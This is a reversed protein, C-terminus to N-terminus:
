AKRARIRMPVRCFDGPLTSSRNPCPNKHHSHEPEMTSGQTRPTRSNIRELYYLVYASSELSMGREPITCSFPKSIPNQYPVFSKEPMKNWEGAFHLGHYCLGDERELQFLGLFQQGGVGPQDRPVPEMRDHPQIPQQVVVQRRGPATPAVTGAFHYHQQQHKQPVPTVELVHRRRALGPETCSSCPVSNSVSARPRAM